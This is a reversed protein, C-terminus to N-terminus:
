LSSKRLSARNVRCFQSFECYHSCKGGEMKTPRNAFNGRQAALVHEHLRHRAAEIEDADAFISGDGKNQSISWFLGGRVDYPLEWRKLLQAAGMLYLMMQFNRGEEMDKNTPTRGSKYDLVIVGGDATLDMRDIYGRARLTGAAGDIEAPYFAAEQKFPYRNQGINEVPSSESFDSKVVRELRGLMTQKEQEWLATEQFNYRRPAEAFIEAAVEYLIQLATAQNEQSICYGELRRYTEELIKHNVSGLQMIDMGEEPEEYPDLKLLRKSFFRFRCMGLENFQTASWIRNMVKEAALTILAPDRLLGSYGDFPVSASERGLEIARGRVVNRWLPYTNLSRVIEWTSDGIKEPSQRLAGSVSVLIERPNAADRPAIVEGLRYSVLSSGELITTAAKWFISEPWPNGKEDLAPRSLTLSHKALACMQYFLGSDVAREEATQVDLKHLSHMETRELDSYLPNEQQQAPFIGESLGVIFVHDHPLGRAEFVTTVLVRGVRTNLDTDMRRHQLVLELDARFTNWDIIQVEGGHATDALLDYASLVEQLANRFGHMAHLDRVLVAESVQGRIQAYVSFHGVAEPLSMEPADDRQEAEFMPDPGLLYQIWQVYQRATAKEPPTVAGFFAAAQAALTDADEIQFVTEGDEDIVRGMKLGTLWNEKGRVIPKELSLRELDDLQAATFHPPILYPNRLVDLMQRRPFDFSHLDVLQLVVAVVPNQLISDSQRVIVPLDYALAAGRLADAYSDPSRMVVLIDEASVGELLLRKIQRMVARAESRADPAEIRHLANEASSPQPNPTFLQSELHALATNKIGDTPIHPVTQWASGYKELRKLTIDFPRHAGEKRDEEHILTLLTDPIHRILHGLLQAQLPTFQDYGDVVLLGIKKVKEQLRPNDRLQALALWGAGDRDVLAYKVLFDQYHRYIRALDNDKPQGVKEAYAEFDEPKVAGQKLEKVFDGMLKIFGPKDAIQHYYTIKGERLLQRIVENLIRDSAAQYLTRQPDDALDLLLNYLEYFNFFRVNFVADAERMLRDRFADIQLRTPLLVWTEHTLSERRLIEHLVATTKGSAAPGTLIIASM